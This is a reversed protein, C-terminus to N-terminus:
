GRGMPSLPPHPPREETERGRTPIWWLIMPTLPHKVAKRGRGKPLSYKVDGRGRRQPLPNLHPPIKEQEVGGISCDAL